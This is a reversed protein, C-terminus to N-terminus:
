EKHGEWMSTKGEKSIARNLEGELRRAAADDIEALEAIARIRETRHKDCMTCLRAWEALFLDGCGECRFEQYHKPM